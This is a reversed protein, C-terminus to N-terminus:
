AADSLQWRLLLRLLSRAAPRWCLLQVESAPTTAGKVRVTSAVTTRRPREIPATASKREEAADKVLGGSLRAFVGKKPGVDSDDKRSLQKTVPGKELREQPVPPLSGRGRAPLREDM